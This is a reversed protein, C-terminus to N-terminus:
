DTTNDSKVEVPIKAVKPLPRILDMGSVCWPYAALSDVSGDAFTVGPLGADASVNLVM